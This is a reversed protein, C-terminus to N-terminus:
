ISPRGKPFPMSFIPVIFATIGRKWGYAARARPDPCGSVSADVLERLARQLVEKAAPPLEPYRFAERVLHRVEPRADSFEETDRSRNESSGMWFGNQRFAECLFRSGSHNRFLIPFPGKM